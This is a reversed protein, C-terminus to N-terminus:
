KESLNTTTLGTPHSLSPAGEHENPKYTFFFFTDKSKSTRLHHNSHRLYSYSMDCMMPPPFLAATQQQTALDHGVRQLEMSLLGASEETCLALFVM